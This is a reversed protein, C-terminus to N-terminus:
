VKFPKDIGFRHASDYTNVCMGTYKKFLGPEKLFASNYDNNIHIAQPIAENAFDCVAKKRFLIKSNLTGVHLKGSNGNESHTIINHNVSSRNVISKNEYQREIWGQSTESHFNYKPSTVMLDYAKQHEVQKEPPRFSIIDTKLRIPQIQSSSRKMSSQFQPLLFGETDVKTATNKTCGIAWKNKLTGFQTQRMDRMEEKEQNNRHVDINKIIDRKIFDVLGGHPDVGTNAIKFGKYKKPPFLFPRSQGYTKQIPALRDPNFATFVKMSQAQNLQPSNQGASSIPMLTRAHTATFPSTSITRLDRTQSFQKRDKM